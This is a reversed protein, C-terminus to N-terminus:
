YHELLISRYFTNNDWEQFLCAQLDLDPGFGQSTTNYIIADKTVASSMFDKATKKIGPNLCSRAFAFPRRRSRTDDGDIENSVVPKGPVSPVSLVHCLKHIIMQAADMM